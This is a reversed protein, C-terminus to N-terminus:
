DPNCTKLLHNSPGADGRGLVRGDRDM